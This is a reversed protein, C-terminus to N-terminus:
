LLAKPEMEAAKREGNRKGASPETGKECPLNQCDRTGEVLKIEGMLDIENENEGPLHRNPPSGEFTGGREISVYFTSEIVTMISM